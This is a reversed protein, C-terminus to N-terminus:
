PKVGKKARPAPRIGAKVDDFFKKRGAAMKERSDEIQPYNNDEIKPYHTEEGRSIKEILDRIDEVRWATTRPGLKVPQPYKGSKVGAWWASACVPILPEDTLNAGAKKVIKKLRMFGTQPIKFQNSM